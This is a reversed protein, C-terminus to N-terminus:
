HFFLRLEMASASSNRRKQMLGNFYVRRISFCVLLSFWQIGSATTIGVKDDITAGTTTSIVIWPAVLANCHRWLSCLPTEYWWSTERNNVWGNIWPASRLFCWLEAPGKHPSNVSSRHIGRVFPWHRPFHKCKIADDHVVFGKSETVDGSNFAHVSM